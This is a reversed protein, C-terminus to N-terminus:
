GSVAVLEGEAAPSPEADAGLWRAVREPAWALAAVGLPLFVHQALMHTMDITGGLPAALIGTALSQVCTLGTGMWVAGLGTLATRLPLGAPGQVRALLLPRVALAMGLAALVLSLPFIKGYLSGHDPPSFLTYRYAVYGVLSLGALFLLVRMGVWLRRSGSCKRAGPRAESCNMPANM